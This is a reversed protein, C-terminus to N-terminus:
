RHFLEIRSNLRSITRVKRIYPNEKTKTFYIGLKLIELTAHCQLLPPDKDRSFLEKQRHHAPERCLSTDVYSWDSSPQASYRSCGQKSCGTCQLTHAVDKSAVYCPQATYTSCGQKSCGTCQLTHAVDKSATYCPQATYRSCGQKSRLFHKTQQGLRVCIQACSQLTAVDTSAINSINQKNSCHLQTPTTQIDRCWM